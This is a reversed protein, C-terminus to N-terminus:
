QDEAIIGEGSETGIKETGDETILGVDGGPPPTIDGSCSAFVLPLPYDAGDKDAFLECVQVLNIQNSEATCCMVQGNNPAVKSLYIRYPLSLSASSAQNLTWIEFVCPGEITQGEYEPFYITEGLNSWLKYRVVDLGTTSTIPTRICLCFEADDPPTLHSKVLNFILSQTLRFETIIYSVETAPIEPYSFAPIEVFYNGKAKLIATSFKGWWKPPSTLVAKTFTTWFNM